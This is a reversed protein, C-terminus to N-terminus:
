ASRSGEHWRRAPQQERLKALLPKLGLDPDTVRLGRVASLLAEAEPMDAPLLLHNQSGQSFVM